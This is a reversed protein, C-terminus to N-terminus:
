EKTDKTVGGSQVTLSERLVRLFNKWRCFSLEKEFARKGPGM